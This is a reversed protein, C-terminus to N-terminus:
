EPTVRVFVSSAEDDYHKTALITDVQADDIWLVGTMPDLMGRVLKDLDPRTIHHTPHKPRRPRKFRFALSIAVPGAQVPFRQRTRAALAEMAVVEAWAPYAKASEVLHRQYLSKSGKPVAHGVVIFSLPTPYQYSM